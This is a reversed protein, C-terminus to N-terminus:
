FPLFDACYPLQRMNSCAAPDVDPDMTLYGALAPGNNVFMGTLTQPGITTAGRTKRTTNPWGAPVLFDIHAFLGDLPFNRSHNATCNGQDFLTETLMYGVGNSATHFQGSLVRSCFQNLCVKLSGNASHVVFAHGNVRSPAMGCGPDPARGASGGFIYCGTANHPRVDPPPAPPTPPSPGTACFRQVDPPTCGARRIDTHHAPTELCAMCARGAGAHVGCDARLAAACAPTWVIEAAGMVQEVFPKPPVASCDPLARMHDCAAPDLHRTLFIGGATGAPNDNNVFVGSLDTASVNTGWTRDASASPWGRPLVWNFYELLGDAPFSPHTKSSCNGKGTLTHLRLMGVGSSTNTLLGVAPRYCFQSLCADVRGGDSQSLYVLGDGSDLAATGCGPAPQRGNSAGMEWCGTLNLALPPISSLAAGDSNSAASGLDQVHQVTEGVASHGTNADSIALFLIGLFSTM